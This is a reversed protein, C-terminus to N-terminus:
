KIMRGIAGGAVLLFWVGVATAMENHSFEMCIGTVVLVNGVLMIAFKEEGNM